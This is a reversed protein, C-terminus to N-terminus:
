AMLVPGSRQALRGELTSRVEVCTCYLYLAGTISGSVKCEAFAVKRGVQKLRMVM